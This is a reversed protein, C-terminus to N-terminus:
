SVIEEDDLLMHAMPPFVPRQLHAPIRIYLDEPVAAPATTAPRTAPATSDATSPTRTPTPTASTAVVDEPETKLTIDAGEYEEDVCVGEENHDEIDELVVQSGTIGTGWPSHVSSARSGTSPARISVHRRGPRTNDNTRPEPRDYPKAKYRKPRGIGNVRPKDSREVPEIDPAAQNSSLRSFVGTISEVLRPLSM